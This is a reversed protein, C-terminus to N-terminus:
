RLLIEMVRKLWLVDRFEVTVQLIWFFVLVEALLQLRPRKDLFPGIKSLARAELLYRAASYSALALVVSV